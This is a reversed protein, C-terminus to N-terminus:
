FVGRKEITCLYLFHYLGVYFRLYITKKEREDVGIQYISLSVHSANYHDGLLVVHKHVSESIVCMNNNNNKKEM